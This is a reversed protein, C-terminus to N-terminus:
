WQNEAHEMFALMDKIELVTGDDLVAQGNFRGFVQHCHKNVFLVKSETYHDYIPTFEMEFRGDDSTFRQPAMYGGKGLDVHVHNLKHATGDYFIMNETATSTNGFGFGVNFGFRKGNVWASGNGWFWEHRFPWVGRGWDLLGFASEPRFTYTKDRIRVSGSAPMCNIKHNYYFLRPDEDFPTAIVMSTLDPQELTIDIEMAPHNKREQVSCRLHRFGDGIRFEMDIFDYRALLDGTEASAPMSMRSFPLPILKDAKEYTQNELDIFTLSVNGVYSLHGITLQLCHRDDSIQYFDWEKTKWPSTKINDRNYTLVAQTSYGKRALTGDPNLLPGPETLLHNPM